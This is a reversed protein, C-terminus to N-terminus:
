AQKAEVWRSSLWGTSVLKMTKIEFQKLSGGCNPCCGKDSIDSFNISGYPAKTNLGCSRCVARTEYGSM